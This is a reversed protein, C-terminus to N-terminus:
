IMENPIKDEEGLERLADWNQKQILRSITEEPNIAHAMVFNNNKFCKDIVNNDWDEFYIQFVNKACDDLNKIPTIIEYKSLNCILLAVPGTVTFGARLYKLLHQEQQTAIFHLLVKEQEEITLIEKIKKNKM